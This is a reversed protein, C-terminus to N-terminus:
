INTEVDIGINYIQNNDSRDILLVIGDIADEIYCFARTEDGTGQIRIQGKKSRLGNTAYIIKKILHPIVHEFGMAPGYINHPRFIVREFDYNQMYHLSLLEGILKVGGYSYRPNKVDPICAPVDEPTPIKPPTQYVESSSAYIFKNVGFEQCADMVNLHGRIGVDLVLDPYKYFFETGNIFALHYVIDNGKVAAQVDKYNRIDGQVITIMDQVPLLSDINGRHNNDFVTVSHELEVLKRVLAAGIFGTGGTVLINTMVLVGM